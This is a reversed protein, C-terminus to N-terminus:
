SERRLRERLRDGAKLLVVWAGSSSLQFTGPSEVRAGAQGVAWSPRAEPVPEGELLGRPRSLSSVESFRLVM